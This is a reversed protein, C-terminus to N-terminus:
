YPEQIKIGILTNTNTNCHKHDRGNTTLFCTQCARRQVNEVKGKFKKGEELHTQSTELKKEFFFQLVLPPWGLPFTVSSHVNLTGGKAGGWSDVFM